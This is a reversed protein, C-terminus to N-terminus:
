PAQAGCATGGRGLSPSGDYVGPRARIEGQRFPLGDRTMKHDQIYGTVLVNERIRLPQQLVVTGAVHITSGGAKAVADIANQLNRGGIRTDM